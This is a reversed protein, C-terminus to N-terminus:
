PFYPGRLLERRRRRTPIPRRFEEPLSEDRLLERLFFKGPATRFFAGRDRRAVIDESLRAQLTKHQTKGYLHEPVLGRKYAAALISRPSLPRREQRLIDLAISLYADM